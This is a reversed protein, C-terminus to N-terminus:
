AAGAGRWTMALITTDDIPEGGALHATIAADLSHLLGPAGEAATQAAVAQARAYGFELDGAATELPAPAETVGDTFMIVSDGPNLTLRATVFDPEKLWGFPAVSPLDLPRIEGDASVVIPTDAGAACFEAEGTAPDIRAAVLTVFGGEYDLWDSPALRLFERSIEAFARGLEGASRATVVGSITKSIVSVLGANVDKGMVDGVAGLIRGDPLAMLEFFDGGVDKSPRCIAATEVGQDTFDADFPLSGSQM